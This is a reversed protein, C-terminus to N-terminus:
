FGNESFLELIGPDGTLQVLTDKFEALSYTLCRYYYSYYPRMRIIALGFIGPGHKQDITYLVKSAAYLTRPQALSSNNIGALFSERGETKSYNYPQPWVNDGLRNYVAPVIRFGAAYHAWGENFIPNDVPFAIHGMEHIFGYIHCFGSKNPPQMDDISKVYLYIRNSEPTTFLWQETANSYIFIHSGMRSISFVSNYESQATACIRLIATAYDQFNAPYTIFIQPVETSFPSSPPSGSSNFLRASSLTQDLRKCELSLEREKFYYFATSIGLIVLSTVLTSILIVSRWGLVINKM